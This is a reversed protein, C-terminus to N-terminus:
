SGGNIMRIIATIVDNSNEKQVFDPVDDYLLAKLETILGDDKIKKKDKDEQSAEINIRM